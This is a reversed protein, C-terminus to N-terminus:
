FSIENAEEFVSVKAGDMCVTDCDHFTIDLKCLSNATFTVLCMNRILYM